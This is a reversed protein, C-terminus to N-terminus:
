NWETVVTRARAAAPSVQRDPAAPFAGDYFERVAYVLDDSAAAHTEIDHLTMRDVPVNAYESVFGRVLGSLKIHAERSSLRGAAHDAEVSDISAMVVARLRASASVRGEALISFAWKTLLVVVPLGSLALFVWLWVSSYSLPPALEDVM